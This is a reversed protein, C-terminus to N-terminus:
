QEGGFECIGSANGPHGCLHEGLYEEYYPCSLGRGDNPCSM